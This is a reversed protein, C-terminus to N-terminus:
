MRRKTYLYLSSSANLSSLAGQLLISYLLAM